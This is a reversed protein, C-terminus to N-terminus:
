VNIHLNEFVDKMGKRLKKHSKIIQEMEKANFQAMVKKVMKMYTENVEEFLKSGKETLKIVNSRRDGEISTREVLAHQSLRDILGTINSKNVLMMECLEKQKL